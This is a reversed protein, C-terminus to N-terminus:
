AADACYTSYHAGQSFITPDSNDTVLPTIEAGLRLLPAPDDKALADGAALLEGVNVFNGTTNIAINLFRAEDVRVETLNGSADYAHGHRPKTRITQILQKFEA